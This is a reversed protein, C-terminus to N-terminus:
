IELSDDPLVGLAEPLEDLFRERAAERDRGEVVLTSVEASYALVRGDPLRSFRLEFEFPEARGPFAAVIREPVLHELAFLPPETAAAPPATFHVQLAFAICVFATPVIKRM